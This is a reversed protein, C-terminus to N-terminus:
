GDELKMLLEQMADLLPTQGEFRKALRKAEDLELDRERLLVQRMLDCDDVSFGRVSLGSRILPCMEEPELQYALCCADFLRRVGEHWFKLYAPGVRSREASKSEHNTM